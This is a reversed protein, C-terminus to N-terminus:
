GRRRRPTSWAVRRLKWPGLGLVSARGCPVYGVREAHRLGALNETWVAALATRVGESALAAYIHGAADSAIGLRRAEPHTWADYVYVEEPELPLDLDLYEVRAVHQAIWRANVIRGEHRAVFCRDGRAFREPAQWALNPRLLALESLAEPGVEGVEGTRIAEEERGEVPLRLAVLTLRRYVTRALVRVAVGRV